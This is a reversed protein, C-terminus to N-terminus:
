KNGLIDFAELRQKFNEFDDEMKKIDVLEDPIADYYEWIGFRCGCTIWDMTLVYYPYKVDGIIRIGKEKYDHKLYAALRNFVYKGADNKIVILEPNSFIDQSNSIFRDRREKFIVKKSDINKIDIIAAKM